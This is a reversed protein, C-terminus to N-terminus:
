TGRVLVGPGSHSTGPGLHSTGLGLGLGGAELRLDELAFGGLGWARLGWGGAELRWEGLAFGGLGWGLGKNYHLRMANKRDSPHASANAAAHAPTPIMM